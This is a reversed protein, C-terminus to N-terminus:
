EAHRLEMQHKERVRKASKVDGEEDYRRALEQAAESAVPDLRLARNLMSIAQRPEAKKSYETLAGLLQSRIRERVEEAWFYDAQDAFDGDVMAAASSVLVAADDSDTADDLLQELRWLDCVVLDPNLQYLDGDHLIVATAEEGLLPRCSTRVATCADHWRRIARHGTDQPWMADVAAELRVGAPHAALYALVEYAARRHPRVQQGRVALTIRGLVTVSVAGEAGGQDAPPAPNPNAEAAEADARDAEETNTADGALRHHHTLLSQHLEATTTPAWRHGIVEAFPADAATIVGQADISLTPGSGDPWPGLLVASLPANRTHGLLSTIEAAVATDAGTLLVFQPGSQLPADQDENDDEEAARHRTLVQLQLLSLADEVTDTVMISADEGLRPLRRTEELLLRLDKSPVVVNLASESRDLARAVLTRAASEAGPGTIGVGPARSLDIMALDPPPGEEPDPPTAPSSAAEATHRTSEAEDHEAITEGQLQPHQPQDRRRELAMGAVVGAAGTTMALILGGPLSIGVAPAHVQEPADQVEPTPPSDPAPPTVLVSYSIEVRRQEADDDTDLLSRDGEGHVEIVADEGLHTRLVDAVAEARRQSLDLNYDPDGAADTHGTVTIPLEPSGHQAILDATAEVDETMEETLEASDYGFSDILRSRDVIFPERADQQPAEPGTEEPSRPEAPAESVTATAPAAHAVTPSVALTGLTTAALLQLPRLPRLRSPRHHLRGVAETILVGLYLGWLTWLALILAATGVGAPLRGSRLHVEVSTWSLDLTPWTLTTALWPLGALLILTTALAAIQRLRQHTM